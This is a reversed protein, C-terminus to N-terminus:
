EIWEAYSLHLPDYPGHLLVHLAHSADAGAAFMHTGSVLGGGALTSLTTQNWAGAQRIQATLAYNEFSSQFATVSGIRIGDSSVALQFQPTLNYGSNPRPAVTEATGWGTATRGVYEVDNAGLAWFLVHADSASTAAFDSTTVNAPAAPVVESIWTGAANRAWALVNPNVAELLVHVSGDGGVAARAGVLASSGIATTPVDEETWGGSTRRALRPVTSGNDNGIAVVTGGGAAFDYVGALIGVTENQWSQGDYFVHHVTTGSPEVLPYMAHAYGADDARLRTPATPQADVPIDVHYALYQSPTPQLVVFSTAAPQILHWRGQADLTALVADPLERLSASFGSAPPVVVSSSRSNRGDTPTMARLVYGHLGPAVPAPDVFSTSGLPITASGTAGLDDVVSITMSTALASRNRWTVHVGDAQLTASVQDPPMPVIAPLDTEAPWGDIGEAAYIIRYRYQANEALDFDMIRTVSSDATPVDIWTGAPTGPGNAIARQVKLTVNPVTTMPTWSVVIWDGDFATSGYVPQAAKPGRLLQAENSWASTQGARISRIRLSLNQMEPAAADFSLTGYTSDGPAMGITQFDSGTARNNRTQVEFQDVPSAPATWTVNAMDYATFVVTVGSPPDLTAAGDSTAADVMQQVPENSCALFAACFGVLTRMMRNRDYRLKTLVSFGFYAM